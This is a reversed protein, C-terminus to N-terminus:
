IGEGADKGSGDAPTPEGTNVSPAGHSLRVRAVRHAEMELVTITVGDVTVEDGERPLRDLHRLVLGGVTTMRADNLNFNVLNNLDVLKMNGPVEYFGGEADVVFEKRPDQGYVQGFIFTIIDRMTIFGDIGGFENLVCAAQVQHGQFFDILEDVRKTPPVMVPPHM